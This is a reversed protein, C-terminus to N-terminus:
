TRINNELKGEYPLKSPVGLSLHLGLFYNVCM